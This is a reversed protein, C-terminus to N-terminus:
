DRDSKDGASARPPGVNQKGIVAQPLVITGFRVNGAVNQGSGIAGMVALPTLRAIEHGAHAFDIPWGIRRICVSRM